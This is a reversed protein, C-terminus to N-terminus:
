ISLAILWQALFYTGLIYIDKKPVPKKFRDYALLSDSVIFVLAGAFALASELTQLNLYRNMAFRGMMCITLAYVFVPVKMAGLSYWLIRMFIAFFLVFPVASYVANPMVPLQYFAAVYAFHALLFVVLGPLFLKKDFILFIDGILSFGLGILIAIKYFEPDSGPRLLALGIICLMTLPKFICKQVTDAKLYARITLAAFIFTLVSLIIEPNTM